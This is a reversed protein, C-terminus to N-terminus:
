ADDVEEHHLERRMGGQPRAAVEQRSPIYLSLLTLICDGFLDGVRALRGKMNRCPFFILGKRLRKIAGHDNTGLVGTKADSCNLQVSARRFFHGIIRSSASVTSRVGFDAGASLSTEGSWMRMAM